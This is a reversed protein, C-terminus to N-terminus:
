HSAARSYLRTGNIEFKEIVEEAMDNRSLWEVFERAMEVNEVGVGVLAHAPNLLV